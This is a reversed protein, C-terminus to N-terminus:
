RSEIAQLGTNKITITKVVTNTKGDIVYTTNSGYNPMYVMNTNPNVAVIGPLGSLPLTKVVSNTKGDIVYFITKGLSYTEGKEIIYTTNSLGGSVYVMNTNPNVVIGVPGLDVVYKEPISSPVGNAGVVPSELPYQQAAIQHYPTIITIIISASIAVIITM